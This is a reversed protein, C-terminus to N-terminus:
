RRRSAAKAPEAKPAEMGEAGGGETARRRGIVAEDFVPPPALPAVHLPEAPAADAGDRPKPPASTLRRQLVRESVSMKRFPKAM